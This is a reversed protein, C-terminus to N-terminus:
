KIGYEQYLKKRYDIESFARCLEEIRGDRQLAQGLRSFRLEAYIEGQKELEDLARCM